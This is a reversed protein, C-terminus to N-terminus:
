VAKDDIFVKPIGIFSMHRCLKMIWFNRTFKTKFFTAVICKRGVQAYSTRNERSQINLGAFADVPEKECPDSLGQGGVIIM